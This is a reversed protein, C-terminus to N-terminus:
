RVHSRLKGKFNIIPQHWVLSFIMEESSNASVSTSCSVAVGVEGRKLEYTSSESDLKGTSSLKSWLDGGTKVDFQTM